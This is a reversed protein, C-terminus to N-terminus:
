STVKICSTNRENRGQSNVGGTLKLKGCRYNYFNDKSYNFKTRNDVFNAAYRDFM